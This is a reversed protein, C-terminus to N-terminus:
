ETATPPPFAARLRDLFDSLEIWATFYGGRQSELQDQLRRHCRAMHRRDHHVFWCDYPEGTDANKARLDLIVVGDAVERIQEECYDCVFTPVATRDFDGPGGIWARMRMPM